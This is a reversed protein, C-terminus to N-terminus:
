QEDTDNYRGRKLDDRIEETMGPLLVLEVGNYRTYIVKSGVNKVYLKGCEEFAYFDIRNSKGAFYRCCSLDNCPVVSKGFDRDFTNAKNSTSIKGYRRAVYGYFYNDRDADLSLVAGDGYRLQEPLGIAM